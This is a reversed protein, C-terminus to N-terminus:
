GGAGDAGGDEGNGTESGQKQGGGLGSRLLHQRHHVFGQDLVGDLLGVGGANAVHHEDGPAALAGDLVMEVGSVLQLAFEFGRALALQEGEHARHLRVVHDAAVHALRARQAQAMRHQAGFFEHAVRGKGHQQGVVEHDARRPALAHERLHHTGELPQAARQQRHLVIRLWGRPTPPSIWSM